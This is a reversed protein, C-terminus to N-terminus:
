RDHLSVVVVPDVDMLKCRIFVVEVTLDRGLVLVIKLDTRAFTSSSNGATGNRVRRRTQLVLLERPLQDLKAVTPAAFRQFALLELRLLQHAARAGFCGHYRVGFVGSRTDVGGGQASARM